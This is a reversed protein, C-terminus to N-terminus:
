YDILTTQVQYYPKMSGDSYVDWIHYIKGQMYEFVKASLEIHSINIEAQCLSLM